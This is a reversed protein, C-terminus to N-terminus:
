GLAWPEPAPAPNEDHFRATYLGTNADYIVLVGDPFVNLDNVRPSYGVSAGPPPKPSIYPPMFVGISDLSTAEGSTLHSVDVAWLGGHYVTAFLTKNYYGLYHLSFQLGATWAVDHPLTWAGAIMPSRPDTTDIAYALCTPTGAPHSTCEDGVFTYHKGDWVEDIPVAEHVYGAAADAKPVHDWPVIRGLYQPSSPDDVDLLVLGWNGYSLYAIYQGTIPHQHIMGDHNTVLAMETQGEASMPMDQYVSVVELKGGVPTELITLFVYYSTQGPINAVSTVIIPEGNVLSVSVSHGGLYPFMRFDVVNPARPNAIDVLVLGSAFPLGAEPGYVPREEGSCEDKFTGVIPPNEPVLALANDLSGLPSTALLVYRFDPTIALDYVHTQAMALEGIKEPHAPDTVDAIIFAVDSSFSHVVSLRRGEMEKADGCLHSGATRGYYDTILPDYGLVEFNSTSLNLHQAHDGHSHDEGQPLALESWGEAIPSQFVAARGIGLRKLDSQGSGTQADLCGAILTALLLTALIRRMM